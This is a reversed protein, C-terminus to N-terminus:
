RKVCLSVLGPGVTMYTLPGEVFAPLTCPVGVAVTGSASTARRGNTVAYTPRTLNTGNKAVVHTSTPVPPPDPPLAAWAANIRERAPGWVDCMDLIHSTQYKAQMSQMRAKTDGPLALAAYDLLMDSTIASRRVAYLYGARTGNPPAPCLFAAAAGVANVEVVLACTGGLQAPLGLPAAAAGFPRVTQSELCPLLPFTVPQPLTQAESFPSWLILLLTMAVFAVVSASGALFALLHTQWPKMLCPYCIAQAVGRLAPAYHEACRAGRGM